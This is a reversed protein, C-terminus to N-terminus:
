QKRMKKLGGNLNALYVELLYLIGPRAPSFRARTKESDARTAPHGAIANSSVLVVIIVVVPVARFSCGKRRAM